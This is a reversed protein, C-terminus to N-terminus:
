GGQQQVEHELAAHEGQHRQARTVRCGLRDDHQPLVLEELPDLDRRKGDSVNRHKRGVHQAAGDVAGRDMCQPRRAFAVHQEQAFQDNGGDLGARQTVLAADPPELPRQRCRRAEGLQDAQPEPGEVVGFTVGEFDHADPLRDRQGVELSKSAMGADFTELSAAKDVDSRLVRRALHAHRMRQVALHQASLEGATAVLPDRSLKRVSGLAGAPERGVLCQTDRHPSEFATVGIMGLQQHGGGMLGREREVEWERTPQCAGRPIGSGADLCTVQQAHHEVRESLVLFGLIHQAAGRRLSAGLLFSCLDGLRTEGVEKAPEPTRFLRLPDRQLGLATASGSRRASSVACRAMWVM